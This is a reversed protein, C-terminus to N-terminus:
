TVSVVPRSRTASCSVWCRIRRRGTTSAFSLSTPTTLRRSTSRQAALRTGPAVRGVQGGRFHQRPRRRQDDRAHALRLLVLPVAGLVGRLAPRAHAGAARRSSDRANTAESSLQRGGSHNVLRATTSTSVVSATFTPLTTRAM